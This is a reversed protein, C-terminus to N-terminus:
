YYSFYHMLGHNRQHTITKHLRTGNVLGYARISHNDAQWGFLPLNLLLSIDIHSLVYCAHNKEIIPNSFKFAFFLIYFNTINPKSLILSHEYDVFELRKHILLIWTIFFVCKRCFMHICCPIVGMNVEPPIRVRM